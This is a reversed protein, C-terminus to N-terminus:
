AVSDYIRMVVAFLNQRNACSARPEWTGSYPCSCQPCSFSAIAFTPAGCDKRRPFLGGDMVGCPNRREALRPKAITEFSYGIKRDEIKRDMDCGAEKGEGLPISDM